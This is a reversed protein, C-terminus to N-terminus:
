LLSEIQEIEEEEQLPNEDAPGQVETSSASMNAVRGLAEMQRQAEGSTVLEDTMDSVPAFALRNGETLEELLCKM